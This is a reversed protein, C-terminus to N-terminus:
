PAFAVVVDFFTIRRGRSAALSLVLPLANLPPVGAFYDDRSGYAVKIAVLRSKVETGHSSFDDLWKSRISKM